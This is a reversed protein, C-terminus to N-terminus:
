PHLWDALKREAEVAARYADTRTWGREALEEDSGDTYLHYAEYAERLHEVHDALHPHTKRLMMAAEITLKSPM